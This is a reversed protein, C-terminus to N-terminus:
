VCGLGFGSGVRFLGYVAGFHLAMPCSCNSCWFTAMSIPPECQLIKWICGFVTSIAAELKLISWIALLVSLVPFGWFHVFRFVGDGFM